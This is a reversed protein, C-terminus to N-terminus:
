EEIVLSELVADYAAEVALEGLEDDERYFGTIFLDDGIPTDIGTAIEHYLRSEGTENVLGLPPQRFMRQQAADLGAVTLRIEDGDGLGRIGFFGMIPCGGFENGCQPGRLDTTIKSIHIGYPPSADPPGVIFCDFCTAYPMPAAGPDWLEPIEFEIGLDEDRYLKTEATLSFSPAPGAESEPVAANASWSIGLGFCAIGQENEELQSPLPDELGLDANTVIVDVDDPSADPDKLAIGDGNYFAMQEGDPSWIAGCGGAVIRPGDADEVEIPGFPVPSGLSSRVLVSDGDPYQLSARAATTVSTPLGSGAPEGDLDYLKATRASDGGVVLVRATGDPERWWTAEIFTGSELIVRLDTGSVNMLLVDSAGSGGLRQRTVLLMTGDPSWHVAVPGMSFNSAIPTPPTRDLFLDIDSLINNMDGADVVIVRKRDAIYALRQGDPSFEPASYSVSDPGLLPQLASGDPQVTYVNGQLSFVITERTHLLDQPLPSPAVASSACALSMAALIAIAFVSGGPKGM